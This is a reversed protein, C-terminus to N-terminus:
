SLARYSGLVKTVYSRTEAYPPIGGFRSVANPGANYAAVALEMSGFRDLQRRLYRAAGDIAQAPDTPDIGMGRATAPMFQMLGIAGAPSRADPRFNSETRAVSALLKPDVGHAAGAAEFMAEYPAAGAFGPQASIPGVSVGTAGETSGVPSAVPSADPVAAGGGLSAQAASSADGCAGCTCGSARHAALLAADDFSITGASVSNSGSAPGTITTTDASDAGPADIQGALVSAFSDGSGANSVAPVPEFRAAIEQIRSLVPLVPSPAGMM